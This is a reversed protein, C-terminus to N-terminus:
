KRNCLSKYDCYQCLKTDTIQSFPQDPDLIRSLVTHLLTEIKGSLEQPSSIEEPFLVPIFRGDARRLSIIGPTVNASSNPQKQYLWLYTLVQLAKSFKVDSVVLEWDKLRLASDEVKGTKYDIIRVSGDNVTQDMRDIFGKLRVQLGNVTTTAKVEEELGLLVRPEKQLWDRDKKVFRAVYEKAVHYVLINRGSRLDHDGYEERFKQLIFNELNESLRRELKEPDVPKGVFPKYLKELVGHVVSGFTNSQISVTFDEPIKIRAVYRYYFQLPCRVFTNLASPSIGKRALTELQQMIAHEKKVVHQGQEKLSSLPIIGTKKHFTIHRNKQVLENEIQLAFRSIEGGGLVNTETNYVIAVQQPHQLLRFFHYSTVATHTHQLPLGFANRLDFPIFSEQFGTKPLVGENAGLVIVRDFDLNRTELMGMVQIGNLPEGKLSISKRSILQLLIKQLSLYGLFPAVRHLFAAAPKAVQMMLLLQFRLLQNQKEKLSPLSAIQQLLTKLQGMFLSPDDKELFLIRLFDRTAVDPAAAEIEKAAAYFSTLPFFDALKKASLMEALPNQMLGELAPLSIRASKDEHRLILLQTWRYILDYFPSENLPYGMTVNYHFERGADDKVPVASLLPILLREDSLVVAIQRPDAKEKELWEYLLQGAFKVQGVYGPVGYLEIKKEKTLLTNDIWRPSEEKFDRVAQRLFTGAEHHKTVDADFYYRDAHILYDVKFSSKLAQLTSKEASTLANFGVFIFRKWPLDKPKVNQMKEAAVRYAMGKYAIKQALLRHQLQEYYAYLSRFFALYDQQMETLPREGLNWEELAKVESLEDFIKAADALAFDIDAFDNLMLPAWSLFDDLSRAKEKELDRHIQYLEFYIELPDAVTLGSLRTMMEDITLMEPLWYDKVTSKALAQKLFVQSRRNPLVVLTYLSEKEPLNLLLDAVRELFVGSDKM